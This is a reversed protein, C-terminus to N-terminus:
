LDLLRKLRELERPKLERYTGPKMSGLTLFAIRTRILHVVPHGIAECMRRVQRNRGEHIVIELVTTNRRDKVRRVQAPATWGDELRIGRRLRDLQEESPHGKVTALYCKDAEYKPHTLRNALEGDNTMLLLGETDYDLRGVPYVREDIERFYDAVTPRGQPDSMSTIVRLPKYFLFTRKRETMIPKGDVEIRDLMPDVKRGLETVTEGNVRVRGELIMDECKRRSAVGAHALVKQLREMM